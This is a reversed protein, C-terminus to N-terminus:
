EEVLEEMMEDLEGEDLAKDAYAVGDPTKAAALDMAAIFDRYPSSKTYSRMFRCAERYLSEDNNIWLSVNWTEHNKWGNYDSM